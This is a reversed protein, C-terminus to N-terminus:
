ISVQACRYRIALALHFSHLSCQGIGLDAVQHLVDARQLLLRVFLEPSLPPEPSLRRETKMDAERRRLGPSALEKVHDDAYAIGHESLGPSALARPDFM